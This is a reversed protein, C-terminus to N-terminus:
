LSKKCKSNVTMKNVLHHSQNPNLGEDGHIKIKRWKLVSRMERSVASSSRDCFIITVYSHYMKMFWWWFTFYKKVLVLFHKRNQPFCSNIRHFSSSCYGHLPQPWLERNNNNKYKGTKEKMKMMYRITWLVQNPSPDGACCKFASWRLFTCTRRQEDLSQDKYNPQKQAFITKYIFTFLDWIVKM